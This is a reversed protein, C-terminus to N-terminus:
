GCDDLLGRHDSWRVQISEPEPKDRSDMAASQRAWRLLFGVQWSVNRLFRAVSCRRRLVKWGPTYGMQFAQM